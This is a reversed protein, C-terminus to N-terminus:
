RNGSLLRHSSISKPGNQCRPVTMQAISLIVAANLLRSINSNIITDPAQGNEFLRLRFRYYVM